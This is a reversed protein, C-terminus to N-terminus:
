KHAAPMQKRLIRVGAKALSTAMLTAFVIASVSELWVPLVEGAKGMAASANIGLLGYLLNLVVGLAISCFAIAAVYIFLSRGGMFRRIILMSGINTAPGSLLFVLAAGPSLGKMIMAAALPTSATACIYMPVGLLLMLPMALYDSHPISTFAGSPILAGIAGAAVFGIVMWIAVDDMMEVFAYRLGDKAKEAFPKGKPAPTFSSCCNDKGCHGNDAPEKPKDETIGFLNELIGAVFATVFAAFPRFLTMVPDLLAFSISISDVGSEPTSILFASTAGKSAGMKRLAIATPLVSCSCLTLPVGFLAAKAVSGAGNGGLSKEVAGVPIFEKILGALVFGALLFPASDEFSIWAM